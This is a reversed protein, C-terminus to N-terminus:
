EIIEIKESDPINIKNDQPSPKTGSSKAPSKIIAKNETNTTEKNDHSFISNKLKRERLKEEDKIRVYSIVKNVGSTTAAINTVTDLEKKSQAIGMLYVVNDITEVSYNASYVKEEFLLRSEIQTSIWVDSAYQEASFKKNADVKLENMVKKVQKPRLAYQYAKIKAERSPVAGTLLVNGEVSDVSVDYFLSKNDKDNLLLGNIEAEIAIDNIGDGISRDQSLSYGTAGVGGVVLAPVCGGLSCIVMIGLAFIELSNKRFYLPMGLM